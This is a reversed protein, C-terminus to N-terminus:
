TTHQDPFHGALVLTSCFAPFRKLLWATALSRLRRGRGWNVVDVFIFGEPRLGANVMVKALTFPTFWFKHDTNICEAGSFVGRVNDWAFANPVSIVIQEVRGSFASAIGALFAVPNEIHELVDGLLACDWKEDGLMGLSSPDTVDACFVNGFGLKNVEAVAERNIDLGVCKGAASSLKAHLWTGNALKEAILDLHDCCGIHVVRKGSCIKCLMEVRDTTHAAKANIALSYGNSFRKGSLYSLADSDFCLFESGLPKKEFVNIVM